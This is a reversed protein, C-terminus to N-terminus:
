VKVLRQLADKYKFLETPSRTLVLTSTFKLLLFLRSCIKSTPLYLFLFVTLSTKMLSHVLNKLVNQWELKTVATLLTCWLTLLSTTTAGTLAFLRKAELIGFMSSSDTQSWRNLTSVKRGM